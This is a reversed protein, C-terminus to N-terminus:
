GISSVGVLEQTPQSHGSADTYERTGVELVCYTDETLALLTQLWDQFELDNTPAAPLNLPVMASSDTSLLSVFGGVVANTDDTKVFKKLESSYGLTSTFSPDTDILGFVGPGIGRVMLIKEPGKTTIVGQGNASLEKGRWDGYAELAKLTFDDKDEDGWPWYSVLKFTASYCMAARDPKDGRAPWFRPLVNYQSIQVLFQASPLLKVKTAEAAGQATALLQSFTSSM